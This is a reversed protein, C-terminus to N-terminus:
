KSVATDDTTYEMSHRHSNSGEDSDVTKNHALGTAALLAAPGDKNEQAKTLGRIQGSSARKQHRGSCGIDHILDRRRPM